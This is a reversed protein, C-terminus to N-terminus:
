LRLLLFGNAGVEVWPHSSVAVQFFSMASFRFTEGFSPDGWRRVPCRTEKVRASERM